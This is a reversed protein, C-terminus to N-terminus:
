TLITDIIWSVYKRQGFESSANLRRGYVAIVKQSATIEFSYAFNSCGFVFYFNCTLSVDLVKSGGPGGHRVTKFSGDTMVYTITVSDIIWGAYVTINSIRSIRATAIENAWKGVDALIRPCTILSNLLPVVSLTLLLTRNTLDDLFNGTRDGAIRTCTAVGRSSM